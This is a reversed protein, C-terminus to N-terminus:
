APVRVSALIREAARVAGDEKAVVTAAETAKQAFSPETLLRDLLRIASAKTWKDFTIDLGAGLREIRRANDFQDGFVPTIIQPRGARLAQASSGIGGHHINVKARPMLLSHPAYPVCLIDPGFDDNLLPSQAGVLLVARQRLARAAKAADRYYSEGDYVATSGLSFVLPAEGASLFAELQPPLESRRGDESDYFPFGVIESHPPFDPAVDGMLPSYLGLTLRDSHVGGLNVDMDVGYKTYIARIPALSGWLKKEGLWFIARNYQRGLETRPSLMLPAAKLKPPDYISLMVAPQLAVTAFPCNELLAALHATYAYSSSVVLDAGSVLPRLESLGQEIYPAVLHKLMFGHDQSFHRIIEAPDKGLNERYTDMSPGCASFAIGAAEVKDRYDPHSVLVVDAGRAKLALALAMFPHLDGLSGFTSLVIKPVVPM